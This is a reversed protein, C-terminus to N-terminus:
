MRMDDADVFQLIDPARRNKDHFEHGAGGKCLVEFSAGTWGCVSGGKEFLEALGNLVSMAQAYDMAVQFRGVYQKLWGGAERSRCRVSAEFERM